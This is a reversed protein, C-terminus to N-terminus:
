GNTWDSEDEAFLMFGGDAIYLPSYGTISSAGCIMSWLGGGWPHPPPPPEITLNGIGAVPEPRAQGGAVTM